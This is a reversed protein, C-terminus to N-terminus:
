ANRFISKLLSLVCIISIVELTYYMRVQRDVVKKAQPRFYAYGIEDETYSKSVCRSNVYGM